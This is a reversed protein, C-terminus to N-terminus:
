RAEALLRGYAQHYADVMARVSFSHEVRARAAAGMRQREGPAEAMRVMAAALADPRCAPVLIGTGGDDVLGPTGGVATAVVPLACAMMELIANSMGETSSALVGADFAPIIADVDLQLGLLTVAGAVDAAQMRAEVAAQAPGDGVLFLRAHPVRLRVLGFADLLDEHRKPADLRAV